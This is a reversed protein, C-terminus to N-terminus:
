GLCGCIPFRPAVTGTIAGPCNNPVPYTLIYLVVAQVVLSRLENGTLPILSKGGRWLGCVPQIANKVEFADQLLQTGSFVAALAHLQDDAKLLWTLFVHLHAEMAGYMKM